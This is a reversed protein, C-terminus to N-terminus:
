SDLISVIETIGDRGIRDFLGRLIRFDDIAVKQTADLHSGNESASPVGLRRALSAVDPFTDGKTESDVLMSRAKDSPKKNKRRIFSLYTQCCGLGIDIGFKEQCWEVVQKAKADRGLNEPELALCVADMKSITETATM